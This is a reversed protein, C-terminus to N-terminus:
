NDLAYVPGPVSGAEAAQKLVGTMFDAKAMGIFDITSFAGLKGNMIDTFYNVMTDHSMCNGTFWTGFKELNAPNYEVRYNPAKLWRTRVAAPNKRAKKSYYNDLKLRIYTVLEKLALPASVSVYPIQQTPIGKISKFDPLRFMYFHLKQRLKHKLPVSLIEALNQDTCYLTFGATVGSCSSSQLWMSTRGKSLWYAIENLDEVYKLNYYKFDSLWDRFDARIEALVAPDRYAAALENNLLWSDKEMKDIFYQVKEELWKEFGYDAVTVMNVSGGFMLNLTTKKKNGRGEWVSTGDVKFTEFLDGLVLVKPLDHKIIEDRIAVYEIVVGGDNLFYTDLEKKSPVMRGKTLANHVEFGLAAGVRSASITEYFDPAGHNVGVLKKAHKYISNACTRSDVGGSLSICAELNKGAFLRGTLKYREWVSASCDMTSVTEPKYDVHFPLIEVDLDGNAHVELCENSVLRYVNELITNRTYVEKWENLAFQLIGATRLPEHLVEQMCNIHSCILTQGNSNYYYVPQLGSLTNFIQIGQQRFFHLTYSGTYAEKIAAPSKTALDKLLQTLFADNSGEWDWVHDPHRIFGNILVAHDGVKFFISDPQRVYYIEFGNSKEYELLDPPSKASSTFNRVQQDNAHGFNAIFFFPLM